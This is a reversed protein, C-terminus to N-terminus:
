HWNTRAEEREEDGEDLRPTASRDPFIWIHVASLLQLIGLLGPHGSINSPPQGELGQHSRSSEPGDPHWGQQCHVGPIRTRGPFLQVEEYQCVARSAPTTGARTRPTTPTGGPDTLLHPHRGLLGRLLRRHIRAAGSQYLVPFDGTLQHAGHADRPIRLPWIEDPIGDEM